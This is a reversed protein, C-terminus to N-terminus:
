AGDGSEEPGEAGSWCHASALWDSTGFNAIVWTGLEVNDEFDLVDRGELTGWKKVGYYAWTGDLFQFVGKATSHPNKALPDMRSECMAIANALDYSAGHLDAYYRLDRVVPVPEIAEPPESRVRIPFAISFLM